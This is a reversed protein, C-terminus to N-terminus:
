GLIEGLLSIRHRDDFSQDWFDHCGMPRGAECRSHWAGSCVAAFISYDDRDRRLQFFYRVMIHVFQAEM